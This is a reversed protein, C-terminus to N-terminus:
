DRCTLFANFNSRTAALGSAEAVYRGDKFRVTKVESWTADGLVM